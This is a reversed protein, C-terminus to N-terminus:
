EVEYAKRYVKIPGRKKVLKKWSWSALSPAHLPYWERGADELGLPSWSWEVGYKDLVVVDDSIGPEGQLDYTKMKVGRTNTSSTSFTWTEWNSIMM